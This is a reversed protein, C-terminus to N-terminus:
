RDQVKGMKKKLADSIGNKMARLYQMRKESVLGFYLFRKALQIANEIKWMIPIDTQFQLCTANRFIYYLRQPTHLPVQRLGWSKIGDGLQHQLEAAPVGLLVFGLHRAQLCWAIDVYDIFFDDRFQGVIKWALVPILCGSTILHEVCIVQDIKPLQRRFLLARPAIFPATRGSRSDVQKPGVAAIKQGAAIYTNYAAQLHAVMKPTPESDQDFSIVFHAGVSLAWRFGINLAAAVGMNEQLHLVSVGESLLGEGPLESAEGNNVVLVQQVQGRLAQILRSLHDTNPHFTVILALVWVNETNVDANSM